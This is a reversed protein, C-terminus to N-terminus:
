WFFVRNREGSSWSMVMKSKIQLEEIFQFVLKMVEGLTETVNELKSEMKNKSFDINKNWLFYRSKSNELANVFFQSYMLISFNTM